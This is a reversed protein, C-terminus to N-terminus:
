STANRRMNAIVYGAAVALPVLLLSLAPWPVSRGTPRAASTAQTDLTRSAVAKGGSVVIAGSMGPHLYCTYPYIGPTSFQHTISQGQVLQNVSGFSQHAGSVVHYYPDRNVFTVTNGPQVHLVTPSFCSRSMEVTIGQGDKAQTFCHGGGGALAPVATLLSGLLLAPPVRTAIIRLRM